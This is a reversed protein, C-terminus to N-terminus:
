RHGRYGRNGGHRDAHLAAQRRQPGGRRHPLARRRRHTPRRRHARAALRRQRSGCLGARAGRLCAGGGVCLCDITPRGTRQAPGPASPGAGPAWCRWSTRSRPAPSSCAAPAPRFASGPRSGMRHDPARSRHARSRPRRLQCQPRRGAHRGAHRRGHRRWAGLGHLGPARQGLLLAPRRSSIGSPSGRPRGASAACRWSFPGAFGRGDAAVRTSGQHARRLGAHRRAHSPGPQAAGALRRPGPKPGGSDRDRNIIARIAARVFDRPM